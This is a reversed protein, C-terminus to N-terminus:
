ALQKKDCMLELLRNMAKTIKSSDLKIRISKLDQRIPQMLTKKRRGQPSKLKRFHEETKRAPTEPHLQM